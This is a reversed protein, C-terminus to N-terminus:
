AQPAKTVLVLDDATCAREAPGHAVVLTGALDLDVIMWRLVANRFRVIDGLGFPHPVQALIRVDLTV